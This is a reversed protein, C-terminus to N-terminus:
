KDGIHYFMSQLKRLEWKVMLKARRTLAPMKLLLKLEEISRNEIVKQFEKRYQIM